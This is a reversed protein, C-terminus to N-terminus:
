LISFIWIPCIFTINHNTYSLVGKRKLQIIYINQSKTRGEMIQKQNHNNSKNDKM